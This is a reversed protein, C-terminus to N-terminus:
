RSHIVFFRASGAFPLVTHAMLANELRMSHQLNGEGKPLLHDARRALALAPPGSSPSLARCMVSENLGRVQGEPM